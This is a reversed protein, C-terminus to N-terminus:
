IPLGFRAPIMIHNKMTEDGPEWDCDVRNLCERLLHTEVVNYIWDESFGTEEALEQITTGDRHRGGEECRRKIAACVKGLQEKMEPSGLTRAAELAKLWGRATLRYDWISTRKLCGDEELEEWTTALIGKFRADGPEFLESDLRGDGIINLMIRLAERENEERTRPSESM